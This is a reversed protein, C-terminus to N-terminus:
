RPPKVPVLDVKRSPLDVRELRVWMKEALKYERGRRRGVLRLRKEDFEYYDDALATMPVLGDLVRFVKVFLGFDTVGSVIGEVVEGERAKAYELLRVKLDEDEADEASRERESLHASAVALDRKTGEGLVLRHALLDSYRRIPSTFHSYHTAGLGFHGFAESKYRAEKLSRLLLTSVLPMSITGAAKRLLAQLDKPGINEPLKMGMSGALLRLNLLKKPDPPEHVRWIGREAAALKAGVVENALIMFEEILRHSWTRPTEVLGIVKGDPSLEPRIEPIELDLAGRTERRKFIAKALTEMALITEAFPGAKADLIKDVEEYTFRRRSRILTRKVEAGRIRGDDSIEILVSVALRPVDALLSCFGASLSFPLMPVVGDALYTSTGRRYAEEDLATGERVAWSVDAIHVGLRLVGDRGRELSVADDHDRADVPDITFTETECLDLRGKRAEAPIEEPVREAEIRVADPFAGPVRHVLRAVRLEVAPDGAPGLTERIEGRAPEHAEPWATIKVVVRDGRAAPAAGTRGSAESEPRMLIRVGEGGGVPAVFWRGPVGDLTGVITETARELVEVIEGALKGGERYARARVLDGNMAGGMRARRVFLDEGTGSAPVVFGFKEKADLRGVISGAGPGSGGPPAAPRSRYKEKNPRRPRM